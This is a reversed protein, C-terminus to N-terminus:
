MQIVQTLQRRPTVVAVKGEQPIPCTVIAETVEEIVEETRTVRQNNNNQRWNVEEIMDEPKASIGTFAERNEM